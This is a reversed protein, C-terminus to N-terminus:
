LNLLELNNAGSIKFTVILRLARIASQLVMTTLNLNLDFLIAHIPCDYNHAVICYRIAEVEM